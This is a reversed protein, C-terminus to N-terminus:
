LLRTWNSSGADVRLVRPCLGGLATVSWAPLLVHGLFASEMLLDSTDLGPWRLLGLSPVFMEGSEGPSGPARLLRCDWSLPHWQEWERPKVHRSPFAVKQSWVWHRAYM